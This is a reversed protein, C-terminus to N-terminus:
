IWMRKLLLVKILSAQATNECLPKPFHKAFVKFLKVVRQLKDDRKEVHLFSINFQIWVNDAVWQTTKM